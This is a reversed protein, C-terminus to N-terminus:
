ILSIYKNQSIILHDLLEIGLIEGSRKLKRTTEIDEKTAEIDGSPHNHALIVASALHELAPSFVERPHVLSSDLTGISINEIHILKNRSNLYLGRFHEKKLVGMDKLHEFAQDPGRISFDGINNNKKLFRKGLEFCSIIQCSKVIPIDLEQSLLLPNKENILFNKGYEKIIRNSMNIVEEKKTGSGLVIALLEKSSLFNVGKNILKERPREHELRDRVMMIKYEKNYKKM